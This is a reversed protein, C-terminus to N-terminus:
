APKVVLENRVEKVGEVSRAVREAKQRMDDSAVSGRLTVVNQSTDVDISLGSLDSDAILAGKVKATITTDDLAETARELQQEAEKTVRRVDPNDRNCAGLVGAALIVAALKWHNM